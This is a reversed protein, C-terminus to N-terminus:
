RTAKEIMKARLDQPAADAPDPKPAKPAEIGKTEHVVVNKTTANRDGCETDSFVTKGNIICRRLQNGPAAAPLVPLASASPMAAPPSKGTLKNIGEAFLNREYRMSFLAAMALAAVGAMLVAVLILSM